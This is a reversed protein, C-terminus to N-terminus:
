QSLMMNVDNQSVPLKRPSGGRQVRSSALCQRLQFDQAKSRRSGASRNGGHGGPLMYSGAPPCQRRSVLGIATDGNPRRRRTAVHWRAASSPPPPCGKTKYATTSGRRFILAVDFMSGVPRCFTFPRILCCLSQNVTQSQTLIHSQTFLSSIFNSIICSM